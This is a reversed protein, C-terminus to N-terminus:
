RHCPRARGFQDQAGHEGPVRLHRRRTAARERHASGLRGLRRSPHRHVAPRRHVHLHQVDPHAPRAEADLVGPLPVFLFPSM